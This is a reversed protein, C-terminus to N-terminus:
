NTLTYLKILIEGVQDEYISFCKWILISKWCFHSNNTCKGQFFFIHFYWKKKEFKLITYRVYHCIQATAWKFQDQSTENSEGSNPFDDQDYKFGLITIKGSFLIGHIMM